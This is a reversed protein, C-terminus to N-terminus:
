PRVSESAALEAQQKRTLGARVLQYASEALRDVEDGPVDSDLTVAIWHRRDLHTRHGVGAYTQRLIEVLHPDCKLILYGPARPQLIAFMKGMLKYRVAILAGRPALIPQGVVGPKADLAASLAATRSELDL